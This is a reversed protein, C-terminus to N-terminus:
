QQDGRLKKFEKLLADTEYLPLGVVAHYSGDIRTVFRGGLGQIAYSGAKDCPEGSHWYADIEAIDLPKFWVHTTVLTTLSHNRDALTVATMVQHQRGSLMGLMDRSANLDVPKELVHGDCVVITDSGLVPLDFAAVAVGARAKDLSLRRVYDAAEEHHQRQEEVDVRLIEFPVSLQELLAKRRPSASALYLQLDAM